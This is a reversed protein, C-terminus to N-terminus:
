KLAYAVISSHELVENGLGCIHEETKYVNPMCMGGLTLTNASSPRTRFHSKTVPVFEREGWSCVWKRRADYQVTPEVDARPRVGAHTCTVQLSRKRLDTM